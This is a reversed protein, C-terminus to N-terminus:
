RSKEVESIDLEVATARGFVTIMVKCKGRDPYIEEVVGSFNAFPGAVFHVSDGEEFNIIVEVRPKRWEIQDLIVQVEDDVLPVPTAGTAVFGTVGTTRRVLAWSQETVKMQVLVYGPVFVRRRTGKGKKTQTAVEEAPVLVHLILDGMNREEVVREIAAKVKQEHGTLTHVVYWRIAADEVRVRYPSSAAPAEPAAEAPATQLEEEPM